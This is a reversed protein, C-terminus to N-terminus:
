DTIKEGLARRIVGCYHKHPDTMTESTTPTPSPSYFYATQRNESQPPPRPPDNVASGHM